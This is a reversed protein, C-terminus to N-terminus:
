KKAAMNEANPKDTWLYLTGTSAFGSAHAGDHLAARRCERMDGYFTIHPDRCSAGWTTYAMETELDQLRKNM